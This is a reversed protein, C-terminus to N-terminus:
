TASAYLYCGEIYSPKVCVGVNNVVSGADCNTTVSSILYIFSALLLLKM